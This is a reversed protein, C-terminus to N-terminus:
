PQSQQEVRDLAHGGSLRVCQTQREQLVVVKQASVAGSPLSVIQPHEERRLSHTQQTRRMIPICAYVYM